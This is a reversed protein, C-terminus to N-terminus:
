RHVLTGRPYYIKHATAPPYVVMPRPDRCLGITNMLNVHLIARDQMIMRNEAISSYHFPPKAALTCHQAILHLSVLLFPVSTSIVIRLAPAWNLGVRLGEMSASQHHYHQQSHCM